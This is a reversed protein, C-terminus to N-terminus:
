TLPNNKIDCLNEIIKAVRFAGKGDVIKKKRSHIKIKRTNLDLLFKKIQNKTKANVLGLNQACGLKQWQYATLLQHKVQCIIGFPIGMSAFEYTTMGGSCIGFRSLAMEKPMNNSYRIVDVAQNAKQLLRKIKLSKKSAPGIIIKTKIKLKSKMLENLFLETINKEDSGGFTVLLDYKIKKRINQSFKKNLIVYFPGLYCIAGFKNKVVQNKLGIFGNIVIDVPFDLRELDSIFVVKTFNRIQRLYKLKINYKDVITVNPREKKIIQITKKIDYDVSKGSKLFKIKRHYTKAFIKKIGGYDEVLFILDHYRLCQALNLCRFVHGMGLEKKPARGGSIRFLIKIKKKL